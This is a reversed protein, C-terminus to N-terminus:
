VWGESKAHTLNWFGVCLLVIFHVAGGKLFFLYHKLKREKRQLFLTMYAVEKKRKLEMFM